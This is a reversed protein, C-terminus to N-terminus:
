LFSSSGIGSRKNEAPQDIPIRIYNLNPRESKPVALAEIIRSRGVEFQHNVGIQYSELDAPLGNTLFLFNPYPDFSLGQPLDTQDVWTVSRDQIVQLARQRQSFGFASQFALEEFDTMVGMPYTAVVEDALNQALEIPYLDSAGTFYYDPGYLMPEMLIPDSISARMAVDASMYTMTETKNEIFSGPYSQQVPSEFGKLLQATEKDTMYVQTYRMRDKKPLGVDQKHFHARSSIVIVRSKNEEAKFNNEALIKHTYTPVYLAYDSFFNPILDPKEQLYSFKDQLTLLSSTQVRSRSFAEFVSQSKMFELTQNTNKLKDFLVTPISAGCTAIILDPKWQMEEAGAIYGLGLGPMMGGGSIVLARRFPKAELFNIELFLDCFIVWFIVLKLSFRM